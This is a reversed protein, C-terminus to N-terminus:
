HAARCIASNFARLSTKLFAEPRMKVKKVETLCVQMEMLCLFLLKCFFITIYLNFSDLHKQVLTTADLFYPVIYLM